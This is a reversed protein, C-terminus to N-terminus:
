VNIALDSVLRLYFDIEEETFQDVVEALSATKWIFLM